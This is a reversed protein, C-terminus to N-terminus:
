QAPTFTVSADEIYLCFGDELRVNSALTPYMSRYLEENEGGAAALLADLYAQSTIDYNEIWIEDNIRDDYSKYIKIGATGDPSTLNYKGSVIDEGVIWTGIGLTVEEAAATAEQSEAPTEASDTGSAGLLAELAAVREELAAVRAELDTDSAFTVTGISVCGVLLMTVLKKMKM